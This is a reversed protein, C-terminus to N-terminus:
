RIAVRLTYDARAGERRAGARMMLVRIVYDGSEPLKGTWEVGEHTLNQLSDGKKQFIVINAYSNNSELKVTMEQNAEARLIYDRVNFGVIQGKRIASSQGKSFTIREAKHQGIAVNACLLFLVLLLVVKKTMKNNLYPHGRNGFHGHQNQAM